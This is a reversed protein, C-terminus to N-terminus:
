KVDSLFTTKVAGPPVQFDFVADPIEQNINWNDYTAEYQPYGDKDTYVLVVRAPLFFPSKQIWVQYTFEPMVGALHFCTIGNVPTMGLYSLVSSNQVLDDVFFPCFFDVIYFDIGFTRSVTDVLDLITGPSDFGAYRNNDFSYYSFKKGNFIFARDGKDGTLSMFIKDPGKLFVRADESHKILGLSPIYIDYSTMVDLQCTKLDTLVDSMRTLILLATSDINGDQAIVGTAPTMVAAM